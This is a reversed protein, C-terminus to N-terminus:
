TLTMEHSLPILQEIFLETLLDQLNEYRCSGAVGRLSCPSYSTPDSTTLFAEGIKTSVPSFVFMTRRMLTRM